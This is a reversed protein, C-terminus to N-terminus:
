FCSCWLKTLWYLIVVCSWRCGFPLLNLQFLFLSSFLSSRRVFWIWTSWCCLCILWLGVGFSVGPERFAVFQLTRTTSCLDCFYIPLSMRAFSPSVRMWCCVFEPLFFKFILSLLISFFVVLHIKLFYGCRHVLSPLLLFWIAFDMRFFSFVGVCCLPHLPGRCRTSFINFSSCFNISLLWIKRRSFHRSSKNMFGMTNVTLFPLDILIASSEFFSILAVWLFLYWFCLM